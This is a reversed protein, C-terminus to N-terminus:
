PAFGELEVRDSQSPACAFADHLAENFKYSDPGIGGWPSRSAAFGTYFGM